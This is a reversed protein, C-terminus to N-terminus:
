KRAIYNQSRHDPTLLLSLYTQLRRRVQLFRM